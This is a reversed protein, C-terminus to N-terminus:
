AKQKKDKFFLGGDTLWSIGFFTLIFIQGIMMPWQERVIAMALLFGLTSSIMGIGCIRYIHIRLLSEPTEKLEKKPLILLSNLSLCGFFLFACIYHIINSIQIPLQFFGVNGSIWSVQCPFLVIGLGLFGAVKNVIKEPKFAGEYSILVLSAATLIGPLAPSLYYTTSISFWWSRDPHPALGASLLTLWPLIMGLFGVINRVKNTKM